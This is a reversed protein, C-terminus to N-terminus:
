KEIVKLKNHSSLACYSFIIIPGILFACIIANIGYGRGVILCLLTGIIAIIISKFIEKTMHLTKLLAVFPKSLAFFSATLIIPSITMYVSKYEAYIYNFSLYSLIFVFATLVISIMLITSFEQKLSERLKQPCSTKGFSIILKNEIVTTILNTLGIFSLLLRISNFEQTTLFSDGAILLGQGAFWIGIASLVTWKAFGYNGITISKAQEVNLRVKYKSKLFTAIQVLVLSIVMAIFIIFFSQNFYNLILLSLFYGTVVYSTAKFLKFYQELSFLYKRYLDYTVWSTIVLWLLLFIELFNFESFKNVILLSLFLSLFLSSILSFIINFSLYENKVKHSEKIIFVLMPNSIYSYSVMLSAQLLSFIFSFYYFEKNNLLIGAIFVGSFSM